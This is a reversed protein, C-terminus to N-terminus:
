LLSADFLEQVNLCSQALCPRNEENGVSGSMAETKGTHFNQFTRHKLSFISKAREAAHAIAGSVECEACM